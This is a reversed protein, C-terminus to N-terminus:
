GWEATREACAERAANLMAKEENPVFRCIADCAKNISAVIDESLGGKSALAVNDLCTSVIQM